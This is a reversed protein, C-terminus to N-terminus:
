EVEGGFFVGVNPLNSTADDDETGPAAPPTDRAELTISVIDRAFYKASTAGLWLQNTGGVSEALDAGNVAFVIPCYRQTVYSLPLAVEYGDASEFVVTNADADVGAMSFLAMLPIGTIQANVSARGDVPNGACSCGMLTSQVENTACLEEFTAEVENSVAGTVKITWDEPATPVLDVNSGCLYKTGGINAKITDLSDVADQTYAFDGAVVAPHPAPASSNVTAAVVPAPAEQTAAQAPAVPALAGAAGMGTLALLSGAGMALSADLKHM